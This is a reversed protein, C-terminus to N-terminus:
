VLARTATTIITTLDVAIGETGTADATTIKTTVNKIESGVWCKASRIASPKRKTWVRASM